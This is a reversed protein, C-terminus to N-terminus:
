WSYRCGKTLCHECPADLRGNEPSFDSNFEAMCFGCVNQYSNQLNSCYYKDKKNCCFCNMDCQPLESDSIYEIRFYYENFGRESVLIKIVEGADKRKRFVTRHEKTNNGFNKIFTNRDTLYYGYYKNEDVEQYALYEDGEFGDNYIICYM